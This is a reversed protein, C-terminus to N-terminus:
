GAAAIASTRSPRSRPAARAASKRKRGSPGSASRPESVRHRTAPEARHRARLERRAARPITRTASRASSSSGGAGAARVESSTPPTSAASRSGPCRRTAAAAHEVYDLGAAPRGPKTPTEWVPGVSVYDPPGGAARAGRRAARRTPRSASMADAGAISAPRPSRCTTRGVHVGDAGAPRSSIPATTSCSCPATPTPLAGSPSPAPSAAVEDATASKDRLQVIDAGGRLAADLLPEPRRRAPAADCVFYLRAIRLRERRLPGAADPAALSM